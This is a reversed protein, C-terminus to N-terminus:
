GRSLFGAIAPWVEREANRGVVLDVHGYDEGHGHPKGFRLVELESVGRLLRATDDISEPTAQVDRSGGILLTPLTIQHARPLYRITGQKRSIGADDFTTALDDLLRMPIPTFGVSLMRRMVDPEINNRWFNMQEAPLLPGYGAVLGNLRTLSGFPLTKLWNGALPRAAHTRRHVSNGPRYDLASGIAVFREVPVDSRDIAHLMLLIGGMSHGVWRLRDRGSARRVADILTPIDQELYDDIGYGGPVRDSAGVGRLEPVYCDFGQAALYQALSRGRFNLTRANAGLGHQLVVAARPTGIPAIHHIALSVGDPTRATILTDNDAM